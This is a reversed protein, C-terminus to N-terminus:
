RSRQLTERVLTGVVLATLLAAGAMIGFATAFGASGAVVATSISFAAPNALSGVGAVFRIAGFFRGRAGPPALDTGLTQM